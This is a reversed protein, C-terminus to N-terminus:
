NQSAGTGVVGNTLRSNGESSESEDSENESEVQEDLNRPRQGANSNPKGNGNSEGNAPVEAAKTKDATDQTMLSAARRLLWALLQRDYGVLFACMSATGALKLHKEQTENTLIEAVSLTLLGGILIIFVFFSATMSFLYDQSKSAHSHGTARRYATGLGGALCSLMLVNTPISAIIFMFLAGGFAMLERFGTIGAVPEKIVDEFPKAHVAYGIAFLITWGAIACAAIAAEDWQIRKNLRITSDSQRFARKLHTRLRVRDPVALHDWETALEKCFERLDDLLAQGATPNSISESSEAPKPPDGAQCFARIQKLEADISEIEKPTCLSRVRPYDEHVIKRLDESFYHIVWRGLGSERQHAEMQSVDVNTAVEVM